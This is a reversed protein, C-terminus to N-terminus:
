ALRTAALIVTLVDGSGRDRFHRHVEQRRPRTSIDTMDFESANFNSNVLSGGDPNIIFPRNTAFNATQRARRESVLRRAAPMTASTSCHDLRWRHLGARKPMDTRSTGAGASRYNTARGSRSWTLRTSSWCRSRSARPQQLGDAGRLEHGLYRRLGLQHQRPEQLVHLEVPVAPGQLVAQQVPDPSGPLQQLGAAHELSYLDSWYIVTPNPTLTQYM